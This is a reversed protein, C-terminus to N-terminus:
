RGEFGPKEKKLFAAIGHPADRTQAMNSIWQSEKEVQSEMPESYVTQLLRKTGGYARTPGQAFREAMAQAQGMLEEPAVVKNVIGWELAEQASLARNTLFLEKARLLGVHKALFHTSSGDPTLGSATYGSVFKAQQSAIVYDGSLAISFGAGGAAGNVAMVVPADLNSFRVLAQHLITAMELIHVDLGERNAEMEALDGGGCFMKGRATWLVSRLSKDGACRLSVDFLERAMQATLANAADPRNLILTAIGDQRDFELTEYSM